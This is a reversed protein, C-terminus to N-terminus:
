DFASICGVSNPKTKGGTNWTTRLAISFTTALRSTGFFLLGASHGLLKHSPAALSQDGGLTVIAERLM